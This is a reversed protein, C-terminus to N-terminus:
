AARQASAVCAPQWEIRVHISLYTEADILDTLGPRPSRAGGSRREEVM